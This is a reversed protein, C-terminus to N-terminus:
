KTLGSEHVLSFFISSRDQVLNQPSDFEAVHGKDLVMVKDSDIVTNIRHAITLVTMDAFRERITKQILSDTELDVSATAEDLVLVKSNRLLARGLCMLQRQGVSLNEGNESVAADLGGEMREVAVKLYVSDLANWIQRDPYMGFPDLNSRITGTFLTPDQPIISLRSRLDRLGIRSIDVGDILVSGEEAEVMRFLALILSSKGAGTRGVIGVKERPKIHATIGHLVLDLGKRYRLKLDRFEVAGSAPWNSSPRSSTNDYPGEEELDTYEIVREVAVLQTEVESSQRVLWNLVGTLNLAYTLSLGALGPDVHGREIVSFLAAVTVVCTCVFELRVSLWRNATTNAFYARTNVDLKRDNEKIFNSVVGFARITHIGNLTESFQAFIPSKSISDLRQLERSSKLYYQQVYYYLYALPLAPVLFFPTITGIVFLISAVSFSTNLFMGMSGSLTEDINYQDKSFRNLIRGIPTTDFFSMPSHAVKHLMSEHLTRAARMGGLALVISRVFTMIGGGVGLLVYIRLYYMANDATASSSWKSLWWDAAIQSGSASLYGLVVAGVVLTGGAAAFYRKYVQWSVSGETRTETTIIAGAPPGAKGKGKGDKDKGAAPDKVTISTSTADGPPPHVPIQQTATSAARPAVTPSPGAVTMPVELLTDPQADAEVQAMSAERAKAEEELVHVRVLESLEEGNAMLEQYTGIEAIRGDKLVIIRDMYPLLHLQHTVLIRTKGGLAGAIFNEFISKGVHADVASLPSDLIYVDSNQYMARACSVRQKQGGSLNIGKEGIETSDGNPLMAIDQRLECAAICEEYRSSMPLGFLINERLTTNQMWAQQPVYAISGNILVHGKQKKIDGLLASVLSSKGSGVSGVVAILEGKYVELNIDTLTPKAGETWQFDGQQIALSVDRAGKGLGERIGKTSAESPSSISSSSSRNHEVALPDLESALLFNQVRNLSVRSEILSSIVNPLMNLPFRLINFLALAPFAKDPTLVGGTLVFTAFVLVAVFIPTTSWIFTTFARLFVSRRLTALEHDRIRDIKGLFNDEWAFFKMVRIGNLLESTSKLREDKNKLMEKQIGGQKRALVINLPIVLIMMALGGLVAPGLLGWLLVMAIIIQIPASWVMHLFTLTGQFRQADISQHNVIEGVTWKQRSAGSLRMSKRYVVSVVASRVQQGVRFVRFFYANVFLTQSNAALFMAFALLVGPALSPDSSDQLYALIRSLLIPSMFQSIDNGLKFIGAIAFERGFTRFFAKALSPATKQTEKDWEHTFRNCVNDGTDPPSLPWLDADVLPRRNGLSMLGNAWWYLANSIVNAREFPSPGSASTTPLAPAVDEEDDDSLLQSYATPVKNLWLGMVALAGTFFFMAIALFMEYDPGSGELWTRDSLAQMIMAYMFFSIIWWSRVAWGHPLARKAEMYIVLGCFSWAGLSYLDEVVQFGYWDGTAFRAVLTCLSFFGIVFCGGFEILQRQTFAYEVLPLSRIQRVRLLGAVLFYFTALGAIVLSTFCESFMGDEWPGWVAGGCVSSGSSSSSSM